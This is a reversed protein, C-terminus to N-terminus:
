EKIARLLAEQVTIKDKNSEMIQEDITGKCLINHVHVTDEEQGTRALRAIFQDYLDPRNCQSFWVIQNSGKQLNLGMGISMPHGAIINIEKKNWRAIIENDNKGGLFYIGPINNKLLWKDSQYWYAILCGKGQISDLIEKVANIKHKHIIEMKKDEVYVIGNAYQQCRIYNVSRSDVLHTDYELELILKKQLKKYQKQEDSSLEVYLNNFIVDPMDPNLSKDLRICYPKIIDNIYEAAGKKITYEYWVRPGYGKQEIDFFTRRFDTINPGFLDKDLIYFQGFLDQYSRPIPTGSLLFKYQFRPITPKIARFRQSKTNKFGTSEDIVLCNCIKSLPVIYPFINEVNIILIDYQNAKELDKKSRLRLYNFDLHDWNDIEPGWVLDAVRKPAIVLTKIQRLLSLAKIANLTIVTKGLGMDAFLACKQKEIMAEIASPQYPKPIFKM